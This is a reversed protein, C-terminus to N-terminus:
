ETNKNLIEDIMNCMFEKEKQKKQAYQEDSLKYVIKELDVMRIELRKLYSEQSEVWEKNIWPMKEYARLRGFLGLVWNKIEVFWEETINDPISMIISNENLTILNDLSYTDSSMAIAKKLKNANNIKFKMLENEYESAFERVNEELSLEKLESSTKMIREIMWPDTPQLEGEVWEYDSYKTLVKNLFMSKSSQEMICYYNYLKSFKM